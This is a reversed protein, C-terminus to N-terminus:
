TPGMWTDAVYIDPNKLAEATIAESCEGEHTFLLRGDPMGHLAWNSQQEIGGGCHACDPPEIYPYVAMMSAHLEMARQEWTASHRQWHLAQKGMYKIKKVSYVTVVTLGVVYIATITLWTIVLVVGLLEM